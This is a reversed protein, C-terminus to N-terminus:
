TIPLGNSVDMKDEAFKTLCAIFPLHIAASINFPTLQCDGKSLLEMVPMHAMASLALAHYSVSYGEISAEGEKVIIRENERELVVEILTGPTISCEITLRHDESELLGNVEIFGARKSAVIEQDLNSSSYSVPVESTLYNYLDIFHVANCALGWNSGKVSMKWEKSFASTHLTQYHPFYRRPCNVFATISNNEVLEKAVSYDSEKQFLVKELILFRMKIAAILTQMVSLRIDAATAIIAVDVQKPLENLNSHFSVQHLIVDGAENVVNKAAELSQEFPDVVYIQLPMDSLLLGQLHRRGINGAGVLVVSAKM